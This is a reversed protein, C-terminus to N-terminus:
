RKERPRSRISWAGSQGAGRWTGSVAAEVAKEFLDAFGGDLKLDASATWTGSYEGSRGTVVARWACDPCTFIRDILTPTHDTM